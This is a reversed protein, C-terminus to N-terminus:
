SYRKDSLCGSLGFVHLPYGKGPTCPLEECPAQLIGPYRSARYPERIYSATAWGAVIEHPLFATFGNCSTPSTEILLKGEQSCLTNLDQYWQAVVGETSETEFSLDGPDTTGYVFGSSKDYQRGEM